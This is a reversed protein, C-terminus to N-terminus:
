MSPYIQSKRNKKKNEDLLAAECKDKVLQPTVTNLRQIRCYFVNNIQMTSHTNTCDLQLFIYCCRTRRVKFKEEFGTEGKDNKKLLNNIEITIRTAEVENAGCKLHDVIADHIFV